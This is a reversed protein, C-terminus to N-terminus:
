SAFSAIARRLLAPTARLDHTRFASRDHHGRDPRRDAPSMGLAADIAVDPGVIEGRVDHPGHKLPGVDRIMKDLVDVPAADALRPLLAVVDGPM